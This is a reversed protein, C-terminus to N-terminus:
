INSEENMYEMDVNMLDDLVDHFYQLRDNGNSLGSKVLSEFQVSGYIKQKNKFNWKSSIDWQKSFNEKLTELFYKRTGNKKFPYSFLSDVEKDNESKDGPASSMEEDNNSFPTMSRHNRGVKEEENALLTNSSTNQTQRKRLKGRRSGRLEEESFNDLDKDYAFDPKNRKQTPRRSKPNPRDLNFSDLDPLSLTGKRDTTLSANPKDVTQKYWYCLQGWVYAANYEKKSKHVIQEEGFAHPVNKFKDRYKTDCSIECKRVAVEDSNFTKYSDTTTFYTYIHSFLYIIDALADVFVINTKVKRLRYSLNRLLELVKFYRLRVENESM